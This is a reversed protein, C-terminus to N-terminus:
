QNARCGNSAEILTGFIAGLLQAAVYLWGKGWSM